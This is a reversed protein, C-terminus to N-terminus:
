GHWMMSNTTYWHETGSCCLEAQKPSGLWPSWGKRGGCRHAIGPLREVPLARPGLNCVFPLVRLTYLDDSTCVSTLLTRDQTRINAEERFSVMAGQEALKKVSNLNRTYTPVWFVQMLEFECMRGKSDLLGCRTTGRGEIRTRSGNDNGVDTNFVEDLEKFLARDKLMFGNCGSDVLLELGREESAGEFSRLSFFGQKEPGRSTGSSQGKKSKCGRALHGKANCKFCARKKKSRCDRAMHSEKQCKFCTIKWRSNGGSSNFATSAMDTGPEPRTNAVNILDQKM